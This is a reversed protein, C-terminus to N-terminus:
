YGVERQKRRGRAWGWLDCCSEPSNRSGARLQTVNAVMEVAAAAKCLGAGAAFIPSCWPFPGGPVLVPLCPAMARLTFAPKPVFYSTILSTHVRDWLEELKVRIKVGCISAKCIVQATQDVEIHVQADEWQNRHIQPVDRRGYVGSDRRAMGVEYVFMLSWQLSCLLRSLVSRCLIQGSIGRCRPAAPSCTWPFTCCSCCLETNWM